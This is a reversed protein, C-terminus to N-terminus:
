SSFVLLSGVVSIISFLVVIKLAFDLNSTDQTNELNLVENEYDNFLWESAQIPNSKSSINKMM